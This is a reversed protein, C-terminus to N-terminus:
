IACCLQPSNFGFLNLLRYHIWGGDIGCPYSKEWYEKGETSLEDYKLKGIDSEIKEIQIM